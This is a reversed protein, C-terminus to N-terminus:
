KSWLYRFMFPLHRSISPMNHEGEEDIQFNINPVKDKLLEYITNAGDLYEKNFDKYTPDSSEKRGIDMYLRDRSKFPSISELYTTCEEKFCWLAPSLIGFRTFLENYKTGVYLSAIAAMSSGMIGRKDASGGINYESEVFSLITKIVFDAYLDGRGGASKVKIDTWSPLYALLKDSTWPSLDTFRDLNTRDKWTDIGVLAMPSLGEEFLKDLIQLTGTKTEPEEWADFFNQADYAIMMSINDTSKYSDPLAVRVVIDRKFVEPAKFIHKKKKLSVAVM